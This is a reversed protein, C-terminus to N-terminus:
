SIKEFTKIVNEALVFPLKEVLLSRVPAVARNRALVTSFKSSPSKNKNHKGANYEFYKFNNSTAGSNSFRRSVV